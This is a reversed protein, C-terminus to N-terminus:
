RLPPPVPHQEEPSGAFTNLVSAAEARPLGVRIRGSEELFLLAPRKVNEETERYEVQWRKGRKNGEYATMLTCM